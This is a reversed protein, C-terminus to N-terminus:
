HPDDITRDPDKTKPFLQHVLQDVIQNGVLQHIRATPFEGNLFAFQDFNCGASDICSDTANLFGLKDASAFYEKGFAFFDYTLIKIRLSHELVQVRRALLTNFRQTRRTALASFGAQRIAPATGIDLFNGVLITKGGARVIRRVGDEIGLAANELTLEAVDEPQFVADVVDNGGIFFFYLAAPDAVESRPQLYASVQAPLDIERNGAALAGFVAYNTGQEPGVLHLSPASSLRMLSAMVDIVNPGNTSRNNFFPPSPFAQCHISVCNGTDSLSGSFVVLGSFSQAQGKGPLFMVVAMALLVPYLRRMM